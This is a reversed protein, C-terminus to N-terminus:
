IDGLQERISLIKKVTAKDSLTAHMAEAYKFAEKQAATYEKRVPEDIMGDTGTALDAGLEKERRYKVLDVVKGRGYNRIYCRLKCMRDTGTESWGMPRSSMRESYVSSIHGETSCGLVHEDHFARQIYEWNGIFYARCEEVARDSGDCHNQIRTLLKKAARLKNKYIYKYFRGKTTQEDDLTCRAVRNIYKMLHFKDVVLKSKYVYDAGARIWNGGDSSIYVCQLVDQDYHEEIYAEVSKWLEANTKTGAYLGGFYHPSILERRGNCIEKKGEFLYILKGIHCGKEERGDKQRHIHDEDAEIYLYECEKKEEPIGDMEPLEQEISHVKNLVTMKTITQDNTRISEAAHQYSHVEAENLVKAEAVETFRERDPLHLLEDLLCRIKGDQDKYLTHEFTIDGVSSILTRKRKRQVTFEKKRIGSERILQDASSLALGIFEAATRNSLDSVTEEFTSLTDLHELFNEEAALLGRVYDDILTIIDM